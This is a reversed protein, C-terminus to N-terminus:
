NNRFRPHPPGAPPTVTVAPRADMTVYTFTLYNVGGINVVRLGRQPSDTVTPNSAFRYEGYNSIGDSDPDAANGWVTAKPAPNVLQAASFHPTRRYAITMTGPIFECAGCEPQGDTIRSIGTIDLPLAESRNEDGDIDAADQVRRGASGANIAPSAATLQFGDDGYRPDVDHNLGGLGSWGGYIICNTLQSAAGDNDIVESGRNEWLITNAIRPDSAAEENFVAGRQKEEAANDSFTCSKIQPSSEDGNFVAGGAAAENGTFLCNHLLPNSVNVSVAGSWRATNDSFVCHSFVSDGSSNYDAGGYGASHNNLFVCGTVVPSSV